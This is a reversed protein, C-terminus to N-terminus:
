VTNNNGNDVPKFTFKLTSFTKAKKALSLKVKDNKSLKVKEKKEKKTTTREKKNTKKKTDYVIPPNIKEFELNKQHLELLKSILEESEDKLYKTAIIYARTMDLQYPFGITQQLRLGNSIRSCDLYKLYDNFCNLAGKREIDAVLEAECFTDLKIFYQKITSINIM